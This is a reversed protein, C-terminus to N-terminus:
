RTKTPEIISTNSFGIGNISLLPFMTLLLVVPSKRSLNKLSTTGEDGLKNNKSSDILPMPKEFVDMMSGVFVRHIMKLDSAIKQYKKLEKWVSVIERRYKDNGWIDFGWRNAMTSAYCNDCGEHVQTCGWWLNATHHTWEIKSNIM